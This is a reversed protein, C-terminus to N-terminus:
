FSYAANLLVFDRDHYANNDDDGLFKTYSIGGRLNGAYKFNLAATVDGGHAAGTVNFGPDIASKGTFNYGLTIPSSIDISPLAQYWTPEFVGRFGAATRVTNDKDRLDGNETVKYLHNAGLEATLQSTDWLSVRPLIWITSVQAHITQGVAYGPHHNGDIRQDDVVLLKSADSVLPMNDRFSIEGAVNADGVKTSASLGFLKIDEPYVFLYEDPVVVGPAVTSAHLFVQPTKAHYNLFYAGYDWDRDFDRYKLALGWQGSNRAKIDHGHPVGFGPALLLSEGGKFVMDGVSWYTGPAAVRTQEYEFQYYGEVSLNDTLSLAMSLQNVPMFVEKALTSPVSLAKNADNPAQGNSIGNTVMFLSEGWLLTHQGLRWSLYHDGLDMGSHIFADLVELNRGAQVKADETFSHNDVSTMNYTDAAISRHDRNYVNDYWGAASIRFGSNAQDKLTFDFESLIDFRNSILDHKNFAADSDNTNLNSTNFTSPAETRQGIQYKM